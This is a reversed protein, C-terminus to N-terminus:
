WSRASNCSTRTSTRGSTRRSGYLFFWRNGRNTVAITRAGGRKGRGPLRM